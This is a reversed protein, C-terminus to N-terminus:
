AISRVTGIAASGSVLKEFEESSRSRRQRYLIHKRTRIKDESLLPTPNIRIRETATFKKPLSLRRTRKVGTNHKRQLTSCLV